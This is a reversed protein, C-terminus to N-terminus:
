ARRPLRHDRPRREPHPDEDHEFPTVDTVFQAGVEEFAPRGAPFRDEVVWQIFDECFVPWADEIGFEDRTIARERDSTAPAIRDVMGNPFAVNDRIWAALKPDQAEALGVVANRPSSATTRSTTAPSCPSPRSAPPAAPADPRRPDPRLRDEARRPARRRRRDGPDDPRLAGTAPNIFYGGETVTMSVIRIAPDALASLIAAGDMPPLFDTM